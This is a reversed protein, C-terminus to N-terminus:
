PASSDRGQGGRSDLFDPHAIMVVAIGGRRAVNVVQEQSARGTLSLGEETAALGLVVYFPELRVGGDPALVPFEHVPVPVLRQAVWTDPVTMARDVAQEWASQTQQAGICVGAGGYARNPKLVLLERESRVFEPLDGTSGDALQTTRGRVLRTWPVHRRFVQREGPTFHRDVLGPDTFVEWMSKQEVEAAISSVMRNQALLARMPSIDVGRRGLERLEEVSYDRYGLDVVEGRFLVEEGDLVLESPDAHCVDVEFRRHLHEALLSQEEPGSDAWRPEIFCIRRGPRGLVELHELMQGALLDRMDQGLTLRLEPDVERLLPGLRHQLIRESTPLMHLGGVGTLNPELFQLTSKWQASEFVAAADLRGFVPNARAHLPGWCSRIWEEEAHSVPLARRVSPDALWLELLRRTADHLTLATAHLYQLQEPLVTLPAPLVSVEEARGDHLYLLTAARADQDIWHVVDRMREPAIALLAARLRAGVRRSVLGLEEAPTQM